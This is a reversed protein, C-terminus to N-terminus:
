AAVLIIDVFLLTRLVIMGDCKTTYQKGVLQIQAHSLCRDALLSPEGIIGESGDRRHSKAAKGGIVRQETGGIARRQHRRQRGGSPEGSIGENGEWRHSEVSAEAATWNTAIGLAGCVCSGLTDGCTSYPAEEVSPQRTVNRFAQCHAM